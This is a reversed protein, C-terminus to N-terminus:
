LIARKSIKKKKNCTGWLVNPAFQIFASIDAGFISGLHDNSSALSGLQLKWSVTNLSIVRVITGIVVNVLGYLDDSWFCAIGIGADIFRFVFITWFISHCVTICWYIFLYVLTLHALMTMMESRERHNRWALQSWRASQLFLFCIYFCLFKDLGKKKKVM